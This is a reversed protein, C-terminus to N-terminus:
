TFFRSCIIVVLLTSFLFIVEKSGSRAERDTNEFSILSEFYEQVNEISVVVAPFPTLDHCYQYPVGRVVMGFVRGECVLPAGRDHDCIAGIKARPRFCLIKLLDDESYLRGCAPDMRPCITDFYSRCKNWEVYYVRYKVKFDLTMQLINTFGFNRYKRGYSAVHCVWRKSEMQNFDAVTWEVTELNLPLPMYGILPSYPSIGQSLYIIGLDNLFTNPDCRVNAMLATATRSGSIDHRVQNEEKRQYAEWLYQTCYSIKIDSIVINETGVARSEETKRHKGLGTIARCTTLVYHYTLLNGTSWSEQDRDMIRIDVIWIFESKGAFLLGLNEAGTTLVNWYGEKSKSPPDFQDPEPDDPHDPVVRFNIIPPEKEDQQESIRNWAICMLLISSYLSNM